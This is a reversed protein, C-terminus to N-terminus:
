PHARLWKLAFGEHHSRCTGHHQDLTTRISRISKPGQNQHTSQENTTTSNATALQVRLCNKGPRTSPKKPDPRTFWPRAACGPHCSHGSHFLPLHVTRQKKRSPQSANPQPRTSTARSFLTHVAPATGNVPPASVCSPFRSCTWKQGM